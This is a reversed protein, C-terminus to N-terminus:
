LMKTSSLLSKSRISPILCQTFYDDWDLNTALSRRTSNIKWDRTDQLVYQEAIVENAISLNRFDEIRKRLLNNDFDTVFHDRHTKVGTSNVLLIDTVKWGREYEPMLTSDQPKFLYYPTKPEFEKWETTQIDNTALWHYKGDILQSDRRPSQLFRVSVGCILMICM